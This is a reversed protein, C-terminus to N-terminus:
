AFGSKGHERKTVLRGALSVEKNEQFQELVEKVLLPKDWKTQQFPDGHTEKLKELKELYEMPM